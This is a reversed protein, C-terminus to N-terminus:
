KGDNEKKEVSYKVYPVQILQMSDIYKAIENEISKARRYGWWFGALLSLITGICFAILVTITMGDLPERSPGATLWNILVGSAGGFMIGAVAYATEQVKRYEELDLVLNHPVLVPLLDKPNPIRALISDMNASTKETFGKSSPTVPNQENLTSSNNIISDIEMQLEIIIEQKQAIKQEIEDPVNKGAYTSRQALLYQLSVQQSNLLMQLSELKDYM